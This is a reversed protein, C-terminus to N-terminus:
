YDINIFLQSPNIFKYYKIYGITKIYSVLEINSKFYSNDM